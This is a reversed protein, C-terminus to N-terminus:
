EWRPYSLGREPYSCLDIVADFSTSPGPPASVGITVVASRSSDLSGRITAMRYAALGSRREIASVRSTSPAARQPPRSIGLAELLVDHLLAAPKARAVSACRPGRPMVAAVTLLGGM